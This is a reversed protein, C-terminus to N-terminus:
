DDLAAYLASYAPLTAHLGELRAGDIGLLTRAGAPADLRRPSAGLNFALWLREGDAERSLVLLDDDAHEVELTGIRLARSGGRLALLRRALHLMSDRDTEQADVALAAHAPDAQLWPMGGSFGGHPASATWPMPTRCGDRGAGVPWMAHGYPDRLDEYRLVAQPLGLEEGQYILLMGRLAVLLALHLRPTGRWRTAVRTVDHNSMSWTPWADQADTSQWPRLCGAVHAPGQADGLLAFSYATHLRRGRTYEIMRAVPDAGGIEAVSMKAPYQDLLARVRELFLPTEPQNASHVHKQMLVPLDAATAAPDPPNDCLLTDHFYQNAADLRLGDVGRDLWFRAICLLTDQVEECHLNLDPMSPLFAHLYYQRRQTDWSWAPGGFWSQWNNPPSGDPKPDAWVYWDSRPGSRSARSEAFWPHADSTHSWVQDIVVRLGLAHARELLRDFDDLSGYSRDVACHDSVDYGFDRMPSAFFPTLWIGDVGLSAVYDLRDVVGPLDGIGDGDSYQFSRLYIQYLAAGRWWDRGTTM